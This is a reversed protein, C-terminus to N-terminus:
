SRKALPLTGTLLTELYRFPQLPFLFMTFSLGAAGEGFSAM